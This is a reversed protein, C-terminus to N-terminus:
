PTSPIPNKLARPSIGSAVSTSTAPSDPIRLQHGPSRPYFVGGTRTWAMSRSVFMHIPSANAGFEHGVLLGLILTYGHGWVAIASEADSASSSGGVLHKSM